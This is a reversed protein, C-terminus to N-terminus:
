TLYHTGSDPVSIIAPCASCSTFAILGASNTEGGFLWSLFRLSCTHGDVDVGHWDDPGEGFREVYREVTDRDVQLGYLERLRRACGEFTDETAHFRCLDVIPRAYDCGEYFLGSLDGQFSRGCDKCEYLQVEVGVDVVGDATVLRAVTKRDSQYGNKRHRESGCNPCPRPEGVRQGAYGRLEEHIANVFLWSVAPDFAKENPGRMIPGEIGERLLTV